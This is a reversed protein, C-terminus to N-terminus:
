FVLHHALCNESEMGDRVPNISHEFYWNDFNKASWCREPNELNEITPAGEMDPLLSGDDICAIILTERKLNAFREFTQLDTMSNGAPAWKSVQKEPRRIIILRGYYHSFGEEIVYGESIGLTGKIRPEKGCYQPFAHYVTIDYEKVKKLFGGPHDKQCELASEESFCKQIITDANNTKFNYRYWKVIWVDKGDMTIM